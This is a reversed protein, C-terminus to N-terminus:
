ARKARRNDIGQILTLEEVKQKYYEAKELVEYSFLKVTGHSREVLKLYEDSGYKEIFKATYKSEDWNHACNCSGCQANVNLEDWRTKKHQRGILHGGHM